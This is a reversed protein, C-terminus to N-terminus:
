KITPHGDSHDFHRPTTKTATPKHRLQDERIRRLKERDRKTLVKSNDIGRIIPDIDQSTM